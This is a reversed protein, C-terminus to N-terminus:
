LKVELTHTGSGYTKAKGGGPPTVEATTNSPITFTWTLKRGERQWHSEIRGRVSDYTCDVRDLGDPIYPALGIKRFGPELPKIGALYEYCWILYDGIIMVHNGSNMAPAATNGNWLEWITTAGQGAMYGWSPYTTETALKYALDLRGFESFTRLLQMIGVVGVSVHGGFDKETKDVIHRFVKQIGSSPVMGFYLPLINSTVTNNAYYGEKEHYFKRNFADEAIVQEAAFYPIDEPHGALTAFGEMLKCLRYYFATALVSPETIRSPDKSHILELSEPPMCWDGYTDKTILGERGYTEKMYVLWKKMEGYHERIARDDGYQRYLMDSATLFAAPWTMNDGWVPWYAPAVDPLQGSERQTEAIDRIWKYYLRHNDFLFAEGYCGNTRDGLWGMREDRQPCDTPMGRYNGRIGWWANRCVKNIVENSCSFSGTNAMADYFVQGEFDTTAPEYSLGSVEAYRFGHYTFTPHWDFPEKSGVVYYDTVEAKRLNDRYLEGDPRLTEAFRLRVTDGPQGHGKIRLWGVMNQGMDIIFRDDKRTVSVAPVLDQVAINPNPQVTLDGQPASILQAQAWSKDNYRADSCNGLDMRADYCEGDFESSYRIPGGTTMKWSTDTKIIETKGGKYTIELQAILKPVDYHRINPIGEDTKIRMSTYRGGELVVSIANKGKWVRDTVDYTNYYVTKDYDSVTPTLVEGEGIKAGNIRAEYSGLGCIYLTAREVKGSLKFSKRFYRAPIKVHGTMVDDPSVVGLWNGYWDKPSLLGVSFVQPASESTGKGTKVIVKWWCVTRSGLPAGGYPIAVSADSKVTGSDWLDYKRKRLNKESSSVVIRYSKQVLKDAASFQWGFLPTGAGVTVPCPSYDVTLNVVEPKAALALPLLAALVSFLIKKMPM